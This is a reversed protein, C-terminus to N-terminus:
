KVLMSKFYNNQLKAYNNYYDQIENYYVGAYKVANEYSQLNCNHSQYFDYLSFKDFSQKLIKREENMNDRMALIETIATNNYVFTTGEAKPESQLSKLNSPWIAYVSTLYNKLGLKANDVFTTFEHVNTSSEKTATFRKSNSSKLLLNYYDYGIDLSIYNRVRVSDEEVLARTKMEEFRNFVTVEVDAMDFAVEYVSSIFKTCEYQFGQLAGEYLTGGVPFSNLNVSQAKLRQYNSNMVDVSGNLADVASKQEGTLSKIYKITELSALNRHIYTMPIILVENYYEYDGGSLAKISYSTPIGDVTGSVFLYDDKRMTETLTSLETYAYDTPKSEGGCAVLVFASLAMVCAVLATCLRKKM